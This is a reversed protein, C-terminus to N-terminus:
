NVKSRNNLRKMAIALTLLTVLSMLSPVMWFVKFDIDGNKTFNEAVYGAFFNGCLGALGVQVMTFIQHIGGRSSIDSLSDLYITSGTYFFAFIFGHIIIGFVTLPTPGNIYFIIYRTAQLILALIFINKFGLKKIIFVLTFLMLIEPAQGLSLLLIINSEETGNYSLFMPMGYGLFKDATSSIFVLIYILIVEPKKIVDIAEKPLLSVKKDRDLKLKPLKLTLVVVILSFVASLQLIFPKYGDINFIKIIFSVLWSSTVWGITGWVRITGFSNRDEMNHFILANVLAYTPVLLITYTFYAILITIYNTGFSMVTILAAAGIHCLALFRRSTIVRDVIWASFFPVVISPISAMSLIVGVQMGSFNLYEKLYMSLIPVYSGVASLQFFILLSLHLKKSKM